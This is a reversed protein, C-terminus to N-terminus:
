DFKWNRAKFLAEGRSVVGMKKYISKLHDNVTHPSIGAFVAIKKQSYGQSLLRLIEKERTTLGIHAASNKARKINIQVHADEVLCRGNSGDISKSCVSPGICRGKVCCRGFDKTGIEIVLEGYKAMQLINILQFPLGRVNRGGNTSNSNLILSNTSILIPQDDFM